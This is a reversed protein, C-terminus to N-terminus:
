KPGVGGPHDDGPDSDEGSDDGSDVAVTWPVLFVSNAGASVTAYTFIPNENSDVSADCMVPRYWAEVASDFILLQSNLQARFVDLPDLYETFEEDAYLLNRNQEDTHGYAVLAAVHEEDAKKYIKEM